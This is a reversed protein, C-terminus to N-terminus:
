RPAGPGSVPTTLDAIVAGNDIRAAFRQLPPQSGGDLPAGDLGWRRDRCDVLSARDPAIAVACADVTSWANVVAVSGGPLASVVLTIAVEGGEDREGLLAHSETLLVPRSVPGAVLEGSSAVGLNNDGRPPALSFIVPRVLLALGILVVFLAIGGIAARRVPLPPPPDYAQDHTM